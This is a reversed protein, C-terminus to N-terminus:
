YKMLGIGTGGGGSRGGRSAGAGGGRSGFPGGSAAGGGGGSGGAAPARKRVGGGAGGSTRRAYSRKGGRGGGRWRSGSSPAKSRGRSSSPQAAEAAQLRALQEHFARAQASMQAPAVGGGGGGGGGFYGSTQGELDDDAIDDDNVGGDDYDTEPGEENESDSVLDVVHQSSSPGAVATPPPAFGPAPATGMMDQYQRSFDKVLPLFKAGYKDVKDVSIGPIFRMKATTDTWRLAMERFDQQSFWRQRLGKKNLLDEQLAGAAEAFSEAIDRHIDNINADEMAVDHSIPPGLPERARRHTRSVPMTEFDDDDDDAEVFDDLTYGHSQGGTRFDEDSEEDDLTATAKGKKKKSKARIPSSVNTSPPNRRTDRKTAPAAAKTIRTQTSTKGGRGGDSKVRTTLFLKQQGAM